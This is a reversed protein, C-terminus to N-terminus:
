KWPTFLEIKRLVERLTILTSYYISLNSSAYFDDTGYRSLLEAVAHHRPLPLTIEKYDALAKQTTFDGTLFKGPFVARINKGGYPQILMELNFASFSPFDLRINIFYFGTNPQHIGSVRIKQPIAKFLSLALFLYTTLYVRKDPLEALTEFINIYAPEKWNEAVWLHYADSLAQDAIRVMTGAEEALKILEACQDPQIDPFDTIFLHKNNRISLRLLDPLLLRSKEVMLFDSAEVLEKRNVEPINLYKGHMEEMMGVSSKGIVQIERVNKLQGIQHTVSGLNGILGVKIM